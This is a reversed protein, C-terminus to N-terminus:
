LTQRSQSLAVMYPREEFGDLIAIIAVITNYCLEIEACQMSALLHSSINHHYGVVTQVKHSFSAEKLYQITVITCAQEHLYVWLFDNNHADYGELEIPVCYFLLQLLILINNGSVFHFTVTVTNYCMCPCYRLYGLGLAM